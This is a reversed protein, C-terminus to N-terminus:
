PKFIMWSLRMDNKPQGEVSKTRGFVYFKQINFIKVFADVIGRVPTINTTTSQDNTPIKVVPSYDHGALVGGKKIKWFWYYIDQAVYPFRHDGDIYAFDLSRPEFEKVAEM